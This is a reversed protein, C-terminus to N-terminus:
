KGGEDLAQRLKGLAQKELRSVYSRSIGCSQAVERQTRPPRADLGYRLTIIQRERPNLAQEVCSRVRRCDERNELEELMTDEVRLVDLLSVGGEGDEELSQDISVEGSLRRTKRLHMLIENEICRAAYTGLKSKRGPQYTNVAKILGITGISILDDSDGGQAYYKRAIHAVLRLNHEVLKNRAEMDGAAARSVYDAEEGAQLPRPFSGTQNLRLAFLPGHLLLTTLLALM